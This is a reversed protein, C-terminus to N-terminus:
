WLSEDPLTSPNLGDILWMKFRLALAGTGEPMINQGLNDLTKGTWSLNNGGFISTGLDTYNKIDTGVGVCTVVITWQGGANNVASFSAKIVFPSGPSVKTVRVGGVEVWADSIVCTGPVPTGLDIGIERAGINVGEERRTM